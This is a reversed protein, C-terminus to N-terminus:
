MYRTLLLSSGRKSARIMLKVRLDSKKFSLALLTRWLACRKLCWTL